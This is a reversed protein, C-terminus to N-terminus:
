KPRRLKPIEVGFARESGEGVVFYTVLTFPLGCAFAVVRWTTSPHNQARMGAFCLNAMIWAGTLAGNGIIRHLTSVSEAALACAPTWAMVFTKLRHHMDTTRHLTVDATAVSSNGTLRDIRM